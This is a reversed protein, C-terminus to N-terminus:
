GGGGGRPPHVIRRNKKQGARGGRGGGGGGGRKKEGRWQRRRLLAWAFRHGYAAHAASIEILETALEAERAPMTSTYGLASRSVQLLACSRRVSAGRGVAFDVQERRAQASVMKKRQDGGPHRHRARAAGAAEEAAREGGATAAVGRGPQRRPGRVAQAVPVADDPHHRAEERVARGDHGRERSRHRRDARGHVPEEAHLIRRPGPFGAM